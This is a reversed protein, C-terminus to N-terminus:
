PCRGAVLTQAEHALAAADTSAVPGSRKTLGAAKVLLASAQHLPLRERWSPPVHRFYEDLLARAAARDREGGRVAGGRAKSLHIALNAVDRVPDGLRMLDFDLLGVRGGAFLLHDPKLDGHVPGRPAGALGDEIVRATAALRSALDPWAAALTAVASPLDRDPGSSPPLQRLELRHFAAVARAASRALPAPDQRGRLLTQFPVGPVESQVAVRLGPDFAIAAAVLVESGADRVGDSVAQQVDAARRADAEERCIKAYFRREEVRGSDADAARADLRLTARLDPRYRVPEARWDVLRWRGPGFAALMPRELAPPLGAMLEALAPLRRDHPFVQLLLDLEPVLAYPPLRQWGSQGNTPVAAGTPEPLRRAGGRAGVVGSVIQDWREGTSEDELVLDYQVASRARERGRVNAIRCSRVRLGTGTAARLCREITARMLEPDRSVDAPSRHDLDTSVSVGGAWAAV